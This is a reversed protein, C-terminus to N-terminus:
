FSPSRCWLSKFKSRAINMEDLSYHSSALDFSPVPNSLKNGMKWHSVACM